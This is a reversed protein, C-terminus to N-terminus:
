KNIDRHVAVSHYGKEILHKNILEAFTVSRHKGGTCGIAISLKSKGEKSYLPLACDIFDTLRNAFQRAEDTSLVYERVAKDMGTCDRLAPDYYPNPLCRADILIDADSLPGYKFGFSMCQVTFSNNSNGFFLTSLREKLQAPLIFSTDIIYDACLRLFKLLEREKEVAKAVTIEGNALPHKRRNEKYRRILVEDTADIFLISYKVSREKLLKLTDEIESFWDGGRADTVVALNEFSEDSRTGLDVFSPILAPPINDVCYYGLDELANVALSKGAGSMGTVILLNM